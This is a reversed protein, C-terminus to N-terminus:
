CEPAVPAGTTSSAKCAIRGCCVIRGADEPHSSFQQFDQGGRHEERLMSTSYEWHFRPRNVKMAMHFERSGKEALAMLPM